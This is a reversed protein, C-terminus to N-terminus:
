VDIVPSAPLKENLYKELLALNKKNAKWIVDFVDGAVPVTGVLVDVGVNFVMRLLIRKPVGLKSAQLVIYASLMGTLVDGVGPVLGLLSDFGVRVNTGPLTVAEDLLKALARLERLKEEQLSFNVPAKRRM